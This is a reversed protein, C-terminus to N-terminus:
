VEYFEYGEGYIGSGSGVKEAYVVEGGNEEERGVELFYLGERALSEDTRELNLKEEERFRENNRDNIEKEQERM